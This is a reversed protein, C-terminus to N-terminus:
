NNHYMCLVYFKTLKNVSPYLFCSQFASFNLLHEKRWMVPSSTLLAVLNVFAVTTDFSFSNDLIFQQLM